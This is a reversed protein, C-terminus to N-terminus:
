QRVTEARIGILYLRDDLRSADEVTLPTFQLETLDAVAEAAQERTVEQAQDAMSM